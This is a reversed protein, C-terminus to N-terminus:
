IEAIFHPVPYYDYEGQLWQHKIMLTENDLGKVGPHEMSVSHVM